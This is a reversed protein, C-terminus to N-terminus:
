RMPQLPAALLVLLLVLLVVLLQLAQALFLPQTELLRVMLLVLLLLRVVVPPVVEPRLEKREPRERLVKALRLGAGLLVQGRWLLSGWLASLRPGTASSTEVM